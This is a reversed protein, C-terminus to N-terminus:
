EPIVNQFIVAPKRLGREFDLDFGKKWAMNKM